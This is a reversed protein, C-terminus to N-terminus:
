RNGAKQATAAGVTPPPDTQHVDQMTRQAAPTIVDLVPKPYFGFFIVL